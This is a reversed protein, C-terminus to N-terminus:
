KFLIAPVPSCGQGLQLRAFWNKRPLFGAFLAVRILHVLQQLELVLSERALSAVAWTLSVRVVRIDLDSLLVEARANPTVFCIGRAGGPLLLDDGFVV